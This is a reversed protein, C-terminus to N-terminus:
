AADGDLWGNVRGDAKGDAKADVSGYSVAFEGDPGLESDPQPELTFVEVSTDEHVNVASLFAKVKRGTKEEVTATFREQMAEQFAMRVERVSDTQGAEHLTREVTTLINEMVVVIV